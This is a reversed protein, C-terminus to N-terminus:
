THISLLHVILLQRMESACSTGLGAVTEPVVVVHERTDFMYSDCSYLFCLCCAARMADSDILAEEKVVLM